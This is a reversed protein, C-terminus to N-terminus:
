LICVTCNMANERVEHEMEYDIEHLEFNSFITQGAQRNCTSNDSFRSWHFQALWKPQSSSPNSSGTALSADDEQVAKTTHICMLPDWRVEEGDIRPIDYRAVLGNDSGADSDHHSDCNLDSM